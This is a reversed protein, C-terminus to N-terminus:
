GDPSLPKGEEEIVPSRVVPPPAQIDVNSPTLTLIRIHGPPGVPSAERGRASLLLGGANGVRVTALSLGTFRRSEGDTLIGQFLTRDGAKVRVWTEETARIEFWLSGESSEGGTTEPPLSITQVEATVGEQDIEDDPIAPADTPPEPESETQAAPAVAAALPEDPLIPPPVANQGRLWLSYLGACAGVVVVLGALAGFVRRRPKRGGDMVHAVPALGTKMARPELSPQSEEEERQLWREMDSQISAVPIGLTEAYQRIFSRTFFGGPLLDLRGDEIAELYSRNVRIQSAVQAIERGQKVREGRLREGVSPM